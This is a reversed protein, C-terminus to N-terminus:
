VDAPRAVVPSATASKSRSPLSSMTVLLEFLWFTTKKRLTALYVKASERQLLFQSCGVVVHLLPHIPQPLAAVVLFVSCTPAPLAALCKMNHLFRRTARSGVVKQAFVQPYGPQWGSKQAFVQPYSLQWGSKQAFVQPYSPQWGSKACFGAPLEAAMCVKARCSTSPLAALAWFVSGIPTPLAEAAPFCTERPGSGFGARCRLRGICLSCIVRGTIFRHALPAIM